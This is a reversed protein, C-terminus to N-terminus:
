TAVTVVWRAVEYEPYSVHIVSRVFSYMRDYGFDWFLGRRWALIHSVSRLIRVHLVTGIIGFAGPSHLCVVMRKLERGNNPQTKM